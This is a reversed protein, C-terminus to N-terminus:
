RSIYSSPFRRSAGFVSEVDGVVGVVEGWELSTGGAQAIRRGIPLGDGFLAHAMAQNALLPTGVTEFYHPSVGNIVAAPEHGPRPTERGEVLHRRQEALGSVGGRPDQRTSRYIRDLREHDAYPAPRLVYGDLISFMSTNAGVGLGLTVIAVLAFGPTRRLSKVAFRLDRVVAIGSL